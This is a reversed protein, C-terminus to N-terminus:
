RWGHAARWGLEREAKVTLIPAETGTPPDGRWEVHPFYEQLLSATSRRSLTDPAVILFPNHGTLPTTLSLRCALTADRIDTYTWLNGADPALMGPAPDVLVDYSEPYTVWSFRLSVTVTKSRRSTLRCIEEGVLKSLGYCDPPLLPHEEDLPLYLPATHPPDYLAGMACVSSAWVVRDLGLAEAALVINFTGLVNNRFVVEDPHGGADPIAGMHIVADAGRLVGYVEGLDTLDALVMPVGSDPSPVRDVGRVGYGHAKLDRVLARGIGGSAGTVVVTM